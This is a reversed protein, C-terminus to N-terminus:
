ISRSRMLSRAIASSHHEQAHMAPGAAQSSKHMAWSDQRELVRGSGRGTLPQDIENITHWSRALAPKAHMTRPPSHHMHGASM